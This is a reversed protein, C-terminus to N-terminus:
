GEEEREGGAAGGGDCYRGGESWARAFRGGRDGFRSEAGAGDERGTGHAAVRDRPQHNRRGRAAPLRALHLDPARLHLGARIPTRPRPPAIAHSRLLPRQRTGHHQHPPTAPLPPDPHQPSLASAEPSAQFPSQLHVFPVYSNLTKSTRKWLTAGTLSSTIYDRWSGKDADEFKLITGAVGREDIGWVGREVLETWKGFLRELRQARHCDGGFPKFGHQFLDAVTGKELEGGNSYRAGGEGGVLSFPLILRFGEEAYDIGSRPVSESYLGAPVSHDGEAVRYPDCFPSLSRYKDWWDFNATLDTARFLLVPPVMVTYPWGKDEDDSSVATTTFVQSSVFAERDHPVLLGPAIFEFRPVRVRTLFGRVFCSGLISAADLDEDSLLPGERAPRLSEAPMRSEITEVLRDFAAVTNDVQAEGYSHWAWMGYKECDTEEPTATIKGLQIMHIWNSLVSELPHWLELHDEIPQSYDMDEIALAMTAKCHRQHYMLGNSHGCIGCNTMYLTLTEGEDDGFHCFWMHDPPSIGSVWLYFVSGEVDYIAELFAILAPDLRERIEEAEDGYRKFFSRRDLDALSRGDAVWSYEVLFNHLLACRQYDLTGTERAPNDPTVLHRSIDLLKSSLSM